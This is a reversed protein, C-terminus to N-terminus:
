CCWFFDRSRDPVLINGIGKGGAGAVCECFCVPKTEIGEKCAISPTLRPPLLAQQGQELPKFSKLSPNPFTPSAKM